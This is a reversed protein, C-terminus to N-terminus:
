TPSLEMKCTTPVANSTPPVAGLDGNEAENQAESPRKLDPIRITKKPAEAPDEPAIVIAEKGKRWDMPFEENFVGEVSDPRLGCVRILTGNLTFEHCITPEVSECWLIATSDGPSAADRNQYAIRWPEVKSDAITPM